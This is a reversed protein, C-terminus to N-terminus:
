AGQEAALAGVRQEVIGGVGLHQVAGSEAQDAEGVEEVVREAARRVPQLLVAEGVLPAVQHLAHLLEAHQDVQRVYGGGGDVVHQRHRGLRHDDRVAAHAAGAVVPAVEGVVLEAADGAGAAHDADAVPLGGDAADLHAVDGGRNAVDDADDGVVVDADAGVEVAGGGGPEVGAGQRREGLLYEVVAHRVRGDLLDQAAVDLPHQAPYQGGSKVVSAVSTCLTRQSGRHGRHYLTGIASRTIRPPVTTSPVPSAGRSASTTMSPSRRVAM